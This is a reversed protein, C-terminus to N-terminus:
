RKLSRFSELDPDVYWADEDSDYRWRQSDVVSIEKVRPM